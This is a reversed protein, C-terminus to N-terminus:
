RLAMKIYNLSFHFGNLYGCLYMGSIVLCLRAFQFLIELIQDEGLGDNDKYLVIYNNLSFITGIREKIFFCFIDLGIGWFCQPIPLHRM